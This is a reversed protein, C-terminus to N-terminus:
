INYFTVIYLLTWIFNFSATINLNFLLQVIKLHGNLYANKFAKDNEVHIDSKNKLIILWKVIEIDGIDGRFCAYRFVFENKVHINPKDKLSYLWKAIIINKYYCAIRFAKDEKAHIDPKNKIYISQAQKLNGEKCAKIFKINVM